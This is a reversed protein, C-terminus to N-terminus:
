QQRGRALLTAVDWLRVRGDHSGTALTKGGPAFSVTAVREGHGELVALSQGSAVDWIVARHDFGGSALLRGDPSFAL